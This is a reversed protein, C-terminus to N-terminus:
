QYFLDLEAERQKEVKIQDALVQRMWRADARARERREEQARVDRAEAAILQDLWKQDQEQNLSLKRQTRSSLRKLVM